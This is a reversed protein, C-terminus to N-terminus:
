RPTFPTISVGSEFHVSKMHAHLQSWHLFQNGCIYCVEKQKLNLAPKSSNELVIVEESEVVATEKCKETAEKSTKHVNKNHRKLDIKRYFHTSCINCTKDEFDPQARLIPHDINTKDSTSHSCLPGKNNRIHLHKAKIHKKLCQSTYFNSNCVKCPYKKIKLHVPQAGLAVQENHHISGSTYYFHEKDRNPPDDPVLDEKTELFYPLGQNDTIDMVCLSTKNPLKIRNRWHLNEISTLLNQRSEVIKQIIFSYDAEVIVKIDKMVNTFADNVSVVDMIIDLRLRLIFKFYGM